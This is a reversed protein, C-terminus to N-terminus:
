STVLRLHSATNAPVLKEEDDVGNDLCEKYKEVFDPRLTMITPQGILVWGTRGYESKAHEKRFRAFSAKATVPYISATTFTYIGYEDLEGEGNSKYHSCNVIHITM